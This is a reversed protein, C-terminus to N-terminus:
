SARNLADAVMTLAVIGGATWALTRIWQTRLLTRYAREDFGRSLIAHQPAQLEVTSVVAAALLALAVLVSWFPVGAPRQVLLALAALIAVISPLIIVPGILRNYATEYAAFGDRGIRDYLPHHVVQLFWNVGAMYLTAAVSILLAATCRDRETNESRNTSSTPTGGM